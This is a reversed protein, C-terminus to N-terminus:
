PCVFTIGDCYGTGGPFIDTKGSGGYNYGNDLCYYGGKPLKLYLCYNQLSSRITPESGAAEKIDNCISVLNSSALCSVGSYNYDVTQETYM